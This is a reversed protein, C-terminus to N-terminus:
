FHLLSRASRVEALENESVSLLNRSLDVVHELMMELRSAREALWAVGDVQGLGVVPVFDIPTL